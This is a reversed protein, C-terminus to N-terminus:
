NKENLMNEIFIGYGRTPDNVFVHTVAGVLKGNQLIPSGSMGQVIGGTKKLLAPDTVQIVMNKNDKPKSSFIKIIEIEYERVQHGEITTLITAKGRELEQRKAVPVKRCQEAAAPNTVTGYLGFSHNSKVKGVMQEPEDFIGQLEGPVGRKGKVQGVIKSTVLEGDKVTMTEGTDVDSICHGLAAFRSKDETYFTVTGLGATSDRVWMGLTAKGTDSSVVPRIVTKINKGKRQYELELTQEQAAEVIHSLHSSNRLAEGNVSYIYDGATLGAKKAPIHQVNEGDMVAGLSLVLVGDTLIKIGVSQGSVYVFQEADVQAATMQVQKPLMGVSLPQISTKEGSLSVSLFLMISLIVASVIWIKKKLFM